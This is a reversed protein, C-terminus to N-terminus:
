EDGWNSVAGMEKGESVGSWAGRGNLFLVQGGNVVCGGEM